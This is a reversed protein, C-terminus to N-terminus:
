QPRYIQLEAESGLVGARVAVFIRDLEPVFLSTRGGSPVSLEIAPQLGTSGAAVVDIKGVGCSVYYRQRRKDFFVDDADGCAQIESVSAGTNTDILVLRPPGRYVVAIMHRKEDKAMPFNGSHATRWQAVVKPIATDVVDIARSDPINVWLRSDAESLQFSEPHGPLPIDALKVAKSADIVALGGSGYGVIIHGNRSDLRMNDADGALKLQGRPGFDSGGFIRVTGDGGNAVVVLDAAPLYLVGQPEDLGIIRHVVKRSALDIVDVTDNGLEAVFLRKRALDIALHDIRGSVNPLKITSDLSLLPLAQAPAFVTSAALLFLASFYKM